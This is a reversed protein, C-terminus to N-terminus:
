RKSRIVACCYFGREGANLYCNVVCLPIAEIIQKSVPQLRLFYNQIAASRKQEVKRSCRLVIRSALTAM